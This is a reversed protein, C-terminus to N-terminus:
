AERKTGVVQHAFKLNIESYIELKDETYLKRYFAKFNRIKQNIRKIKGFNITMASQRLTLIYDGDESKVIGTIHKTLFKDQNIKQLLPFLEAVETTDLGSILPVRASYNKSTPMVNGKNDIYYSEDGMVRAIPHRQTVRAGLNGTITRFVEANAIMPNLNLRQEMTNLSLSDKARKEAKDPKTILLNNVTKQTIFLHKGNTFEVSVSGLDRGSNRYASFGYLFGIFLILGFIQLIKSSNKM